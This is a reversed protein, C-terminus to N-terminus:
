HWFLVLSTVLVRTIKFSAAVRGLVVGFVIAALGLVITRNAINEIFYDPFYYQTAFFIILGTLFAVSVFTLIANGTTEVENTEEDGLM